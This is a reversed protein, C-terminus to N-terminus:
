IDLCDMILSVELVNVCLIVNAVKYVRPGTKVAYRYVSGSNLILTTSESPLLLVIASTNRGYDKLLQITVPETTDNTFDLLVEYNQVLSPM